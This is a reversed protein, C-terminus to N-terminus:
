DDDLSGFPGEEDEDDAELDEEDDDEGEDLWAEEDEVPQPLRDELMSAVTGPALQPAGEIVWSLFDEPGGNLYPPPSVPKFVTALGEELSLSNLVSALEQVTRWGLEHDIDISFKVWWGGDTEEGSGIGRTPTDNSDLAPIRLLFDILKGFKPHHADAM